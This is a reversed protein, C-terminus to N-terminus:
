ADNARRAVAGTGSTAEPDAPQRAKVPAPPVVCPARAGMGRHRGRLKSSRSVHPPPV